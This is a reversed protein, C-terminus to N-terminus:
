FKITDKILRKKKKKQKFKYINEKFKICQFEIVDDNHMLKIYNLKEIPRLVQNLIQRNSLEIGLEERITEFKLRKRYRKRPYYFPLVFRKMFLNASTPIYNWDYNKIPVEVSHNMLINNIMYLIFRSNLSIKYEYDFKGIPKAEYKNLITEDIPRNMEISKLKKFLLGSCKNNNFVCVPFDFKIKKICLENIAKELQKDKIKTQTYKIFDSHKFKIYPDFADKTLSRLIGIINEIDNDVNIVIQDTSDNSLTVKSIGYINNRNEPIKDKMFKCLFDLFIIHNRYKSPEEFINRLNKNVSHESILYQEEFEM